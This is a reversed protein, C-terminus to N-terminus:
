RDLHGGGSPPLEASGVAPPLKRSRERGSSVPGPSAVTDRSIRPGSGKRRHQQKLFTEMRSEDVPRDAEGKAPPLLGADTHSAPIPAARDTDELHVLDIANRDARDGLLIGVCGAEGGAVLQQAEHRLRWALGHSGSRLDPADGEVVAAISVPHLD